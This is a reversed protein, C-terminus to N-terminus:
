AMAAKGYRDRELNSEENRQM